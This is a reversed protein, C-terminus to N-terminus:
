VPYCFSLKRPLVSIRADTTGIIEGDTQILLPEAASLKVEVVSKQSVGRIADFNGKFTQAFAMMVELKSLEMTVLELTGDRPNARPSAIQGGGYFRTNAITVNFLNSHRTRAGDCEIELELNKWGALSTAIAAVYIGSRLVERPMTLCKQTVAASFGVTASSLFYETRTDRRHSVCEVKGVDLDFSTGSAFTRIFRGADVQIGFARAFDNGTGLPILGFKPLPDKGGKLIGNAVEHATGDGGVAVVLDSELSAKLALEFAHHQYQTIHVHTAVHQERLAHEITSLLASKCVREHCIFTVSKLLGEAM